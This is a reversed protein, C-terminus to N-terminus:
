EWSGYLPNPFIFFKEGFMGFFDDTNEMDPFDKINDGLYALVDHEPFDKKLYYMDDIIFNNEVSNFRSQKCLHNDLADNTLIINDFCIDHKNLVDVTASMVDDHNGYRNSILTIYGNNQKVYKLFNKSGPTPVGRRKNVIRQSCLLGTEWKGTEQMYWSDELITKDIDAIIGWRKGKNKYNYIQKSLNEIVSKFTQIYITKMELSKTYWDIGNINKM